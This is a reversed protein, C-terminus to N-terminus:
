LLISDRQEHANNVAQRLGILKLKLVLIKHYAIEVSLTGATEVGANETAWGSGL